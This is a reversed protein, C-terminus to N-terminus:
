AYPIESIFWKIEEIVKEFALTTGAFPHVVGFTHGTKEILKYKTKEKDSKNFLTDAHSYDVSLDQDGHIILTPVKIKRMAKQIDLRVKNTEIDELLSLDMRMIQGTRSNPEEIYGKEKWEKKKRETYRDYTSVAALTILKKIRTDQSTKLVVCGGGRSHGILTLKSFDYNFNEKKEDFYDIIDGLDDLERSFTNKAFLELRTFHVLEDEKEGVGNYSFNFSACFFGAEALKDLMYPFGGWDKFGKFGHVFIILPLNKKGEDYRVDTTLNDGYENQINFSRKTIM